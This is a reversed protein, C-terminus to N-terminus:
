VTIFYCFEKPVRYFADMGKRKDTLIYIEELYQKKYIQKSHCFISARTNLNVLVYWFPEQKHLRIKRGSFSVTDFPFDYEGTFETSNKTEVEVLFIKGDKSCTIDVGYDEKTSIIDFGRKKLFSSIIEKAPADCIDYSHQNFKRAGYKM